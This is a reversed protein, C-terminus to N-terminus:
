ELCAIIEKFSASWKGTLQTLTYEQKKSDFEWIIITEITRGKQLYYAVDDSKDDREEKFGQRSLSVLRKKIKEIAKLSFETKSLRPDTPFTWTHLDELGKSFIDQKEAYKRWDTGLIHTHNTFSTVSGRFDWAAKAQQAHLMAPVILSLLVVGILTIFKKM